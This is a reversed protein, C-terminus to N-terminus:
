GDMEVATQVTEAADEARAMSIEKLAKIDLRACLTTEWETSPVLSAWASHAAMLVPATAPVIPAAAGEADQTPAPRLYVKYSNPLSREMVNLYRQFIVEPRDPERNRINEDMEDIVAM